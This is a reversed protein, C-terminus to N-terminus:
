KTFDLKSNVKIVADILERDYDTATRSPADFIMTEENGTTYPQWKPLYANNPDGTKAFSTWAGFFENQLREGDGPIHCIPVLEINRFVFPLEACHWAPEGDNFPMDYAFVYGYAPAAADKAHKDLFAINAKRFRVDTLLTDLICKDPYAKKFSEVVKDTDEGFKEQLIAMCEEESREYKHLPFNPNPIEGLTSGVMLPVTKAHETFEYDGAYGKFYDGVVPSFSAPIGLEKLQPRIATYADVITSYPLEEIKKITEKTLGLEKVLLEAKKQAKEKTNPDTGYLIGSQLIAKHFLGDAAPIQLLTHVKGGGGSQGFITVNDPDGGFQAINDRVWELAMVLDAIGSCGSNKYEEGYASLDLYGAINLRHNLSVLVIEGSKAASQGEYCVLEVSSGTDFGGGHIWVMVPKKTETGLTDTWVNIYQCAEDQPWYRHAIRVDNFGNVKKEMYPATDGYAITDKVGEWAPYKEPMHFRVAKAYPIGKFTYVGDMKYGRIKGATTQVIPETSTCIFEM